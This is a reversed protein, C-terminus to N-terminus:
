FLIKDLIYDIKPLTITLPNLFKCVYMCVSMCVYMCYTIINCWFEFRDIEILAQMVWELKRNVLVFPSSRMAGISYNIISLSFLFTKLKSLETPLQYLKPNCVYMCVYMCLSMFGNSLYFSKYINVMPSNKAWIKPKQSSILWFYIKKRM